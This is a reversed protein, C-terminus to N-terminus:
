ECIENKDLTKLWADPGYGIVMHKGAILVPTGPIKAAKALAASKLVHPEYEKQLRDYVEEITSDGLLQPFFVLFQSLVVTRAEALDETEPQKLYKYAFDVKTKLDDTGVADELIWAAMDSGIFSKRPFFSLKLSRYKEPYEGLLKHALRCHWCLPDTLILIDKDGTGHLEVVANDALAKFEPGCSDVSKKEKEGQASKESKVPAEKTTEVKSPTEESPPQCGLLLLGAFLLATLMILYKQM